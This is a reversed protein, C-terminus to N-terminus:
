YQYTNGKLILKFYERENIVACRGRPIKQRVNNPLVVSIYLDDHIKYVRGCSYGRVTPMGTDRVPKPDKISVYDGPKM